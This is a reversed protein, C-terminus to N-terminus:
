ATRQPASKSLILSSMVTGRVIRNNRLNIIEREPIDKFMDKGLTGPGYYQQGSATNNMSNQSGSLIRWVADFHYKHIVKLSGMDNFDPHNRLLENMSGVIKVFAKPYRKM